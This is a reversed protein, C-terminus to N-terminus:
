RRAETPLVLDVSSIFRSNVGIRAPKRLFYRARKAFFANAKFPDSGAVRSNLSLLCLRM